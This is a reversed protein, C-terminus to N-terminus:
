DDWKKGDWRSLKIRGTMNVSIALSDRGAPSNTLYISGPTATGNPQFHVKNGQFSVGHPPLSKDPPPPTGEKAGFRIHSPLTRDVPGPLSYGKSIPDFQITAPMGESIAKQRIWRLDSIIRQAADNLNYRPLQAAYHVVGLATLISILSVVVLLEVITYGKESFVM